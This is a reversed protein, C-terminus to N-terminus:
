AAARPRRWGLVVVWPGAALLLLLNLWGWVDGIRGYMTGGGGVGSGGTRITGILVGEGQVRPETGTWRAPMIRGREDIFVSKGTNVARVMPVGLEVCRWRSLQMHQLRGGDWWGFWGDNSLNVMVDARRRGTARDYVLRRCLSARTAEFCIPTAISVPGGGVEDVLSVGGRRPVLLVRAEGGSALDFKMGNAGISLMWRQLAPVRWVYPIVEGFPTLDMKDYRTSLVRGASLVFASNFRAEEHLEVGGGSGSSTIKLGESAAGGIVIPTELGAQLAVLEDYFITSAVPAGGEVKFQLGAAREEAVAEANLAYGPFMTEPFVIMEPREPAAAAQRALETWKRWEKLKSAMGWGLKNSQPLNTQVVAIPVSRGGGSGGGGSSDGTQMTGVVSMVGWVGAVVAAGIGGIRRPLSGWGAADALAGALAAALFAVFYSGLVAAPAALGPQAILAHGVGFWAYGTLLVEGRLVEVGTWLVGGALSLPVRVGVQKIKAILWVFLAPYGCLYLALLPYGVATVDLLWAQQGLWVPLGGLGALVATRMPRAAGRSAAWLLPVVAGLTLPWVGVPPLALSLLVGHGLGALLLAWWAVGAGSFRADQRRERAM